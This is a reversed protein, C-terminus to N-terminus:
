FARDALRFKLSNGQALLRRKQYLRRNDSNFEFKMDCDLGYLDMIKFETPVFQDGERFMVFCVLLHFGDETVKPEAAPSLFFSRLSTKPQSESHTKVELYIPMSGTEIKIDPYGASKGKGSRTAPPGAELKEDKLAQLVFKEIDNGAENPRRRNIPNKKVAKCAQSMARAIKSLIEKHDKPDFKKVAVDFLSQIILEFPINKIPRIFQTLLQELKLERETKM